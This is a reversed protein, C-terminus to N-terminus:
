IISARRITIDAALHAVNTVTTLDAIFHGPLSATGPTLWPWAFGHAVGSYLHFIWRVHEKIADAVDDLEQEVVVGHATALMEGIVAAASDLTKAEGPPKGGEMLDIRRQEYRAVLEPPPVLGGFQVFEAFQTYARHYSDAEQRLVVTTNAIREHEDEPGLMYVVRGAGLLASRLLVPLVSPVIAPSNDVFIDRVLGLSGRALHLGRTITLRPDVQPEPLADILRSLDSNPQGLRGPDDPMEDCLEAMRAVIRLTQVLQDM